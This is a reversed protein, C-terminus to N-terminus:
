DEMDEESAAEWSKLEEELEYYKREEEEKAAQEYMYNLYALYYGDRGYFPDGYCMSCMRQGVPVPVGCMTCYGM